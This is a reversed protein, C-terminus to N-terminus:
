RRRLCRCEEASYKPWRGFRVWYNLSRYFSFLGSFYYIIVFHMQQSWRGFFAERQMGLKHVM